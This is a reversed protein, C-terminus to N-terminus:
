PYQWWAERVGASLGHGLQDLCHSAVRMLFPASINPDAPNVIPSPIRILPWTSGATILAQVAGQSALQFPFSGGIVPFDLDISFHANGNSNTTFGNAPTPTGPFPPSEFLAMDLAHGSLLPTAGGGTMPSPGISTNNGMADGPGNGRMRLWVTFVTFPVANKVKIDVTSSNGVQRVHLKATAGQWSNSSPDPPCNAEVTDGSGSTSNPARRTMDANITVSGALAMGTFALSGVLVAIAKNVNSLQIM